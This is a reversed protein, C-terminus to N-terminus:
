VTSRRPQCGVGRGGEPGRHGSEGADDLRLVVQQELEIREWGRVTEADDHVGLADNSM